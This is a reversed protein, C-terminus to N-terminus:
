TQYFYNKSIRGFSNLEDAFEKALLPHDKKDFYRLPNRFALQKAKPTLVQKRKPAHDVSVDMGPHLPMDDPLGEAIYTRLGNMEAGMSRRFTAWGQANTNDDVPADRQICWAAM